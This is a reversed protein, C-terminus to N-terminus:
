TELLGRRGGLRYAVAALAALGVVMLVGLAAVEPFRGDSYEEWITVSLVESGPSYLLISTSLERMAVILIYLWGAALGPLMLPILVRTLTRWWAAGSTQASEELERGVQAMAASAYRMGYPLFLTLYAILLIWLTGYVPLPSRLYVFLLAVALVLGPVSIPLFALGDVLGRGRVKTRLVLWAAVVSLLMVGTGAGVGLLFSNKLSRLIQDNGLVNAYPQLTAHVLSERTPAAFFRQTSVYVLVLLPLGAAVVAYSVVFGAAAWRWRGLPIRTPRFGKGTVTQYSLGQHWLRGHVVVGVSTLILLSTSYAAAAGFDPPYEGLSRWIRSTFVWVGGPLGLLAPVAFAGLTRVALILTAAALAPRLLPLTVRRVTTLVRAGSVLASAEFAPDMSRFAAAMLLFALPSLHLGEVFVMGGLSFINFTGEGLVVNLVGSRPSALFIWAIAYLVGPLALPALAAVFLLRRAPLDTRMVFFALLTGVCVALATSGGAFWLSNALMPGLDRARYADRFHALSLEGDPVFTKWLLYGLPVATLLAIVGVVACVIATEGRLLAPRARLAPRRWVTAGTLEPVRELLPVYVAARDHTPSEHM